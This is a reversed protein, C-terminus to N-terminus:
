LLTGVESATVTFSCAGEADLDFVTESLRGEALAEALAAPSAYARDCVPVEALLAGLLTRECDHLPARPGPSPALAQAPASVHQLRSPTAGSAAGGVAVLAQALCPCYM